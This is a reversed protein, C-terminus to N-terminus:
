KSGYEAFDNYSGIVEDYALDFMRHRYDVEEEDFEDKELEGILTLLNAACTEMDDYYSTYYSEHSLLSLNKGSTSKNKAASAQLAAIEKKVESYDPDDGDTTEYFHDVVKKLSSLDTKMPILFQSIPDKKLLQVEAVDGADSAIGAAKRWAKRTNDLYFGLSDRVTAYGAFQDGEFTKKSYYDKMAKSWKELGAVSAKASNVATEIEKKEKMTAPVAKLAEDYKNYYGVAIPFADSGNLNISFSSNYNGAQIRERYIEGDDLRNQYYQYQDLYKNSIDIVTNVLTILKSANADTMTQARAGSSLLLLSLAIITKTRKM